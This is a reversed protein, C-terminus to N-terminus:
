CSLAPGQQQHPVTLNMQIMGLVGYDAGVTPRIIKDINMIAGM